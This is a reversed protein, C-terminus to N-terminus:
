NGTKNLPRLNDVVWFIWSCLRPLLLVQKYFDLSIEEWRATVQSWLNPGLPLSNVPQSRPQDSFFAILRYIIVIIIIFFLFLITIVSIIIIIIIISIIIINITVFCFLFMKLCDVKYFHVRYAFPTLCFCLTCQYFPKLQQLITLVAQKPTVPNSATILSHGHPM